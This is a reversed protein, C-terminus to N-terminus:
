FNQGTTSQTQSNYNMHKINIQIFDTYGVFWFEELNLTRMSEQQKEALKFALFLEPNTLKVKQCTYFYRWVM